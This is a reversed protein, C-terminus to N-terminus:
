NSSSSLSELEDIRRKFKQIALRFEGIASHTPPNTVGVAIKVNEPFFVSTIPLGIRTDLGDIAFAKVTGAGVLLVYPFNKMERLVDGMHGKCAKEPVHRWIFTLRCHRLDLGVTSLESRLVDGRESVFPMNVQLDKFDPSEGVILIKADKPGIPTVMKKGCICTDM